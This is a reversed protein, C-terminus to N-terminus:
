GKHTACWEELKRPDIIGFGQFFKKGAYEKNSLPTSNEKFEKRYDDVSNLPLHPCCKRQYSLMLAAVGVAFPCAMSTGSLISYWDPPYTSFIQGGPALFDLNEGTNSFDSRDFDEDISGIAITEPYAAPYFVEKTKGANGAACFTVINKSAAYQIAKRVQQVPCPSGLSMSIIDVGQDAAWRIAEAVIELNGNGNKDLVKVPMIKARPAVGVMGIENNDAALIGACHTNSVFHGNALYTHNDQVTFDYFYGSYTDETIRKVRRVQTRHRTKIQSREKKRPHLLQCSIEEPLSSFTCNLIPFKKNETKRDFSINKHKQVGCLIGISNFLASIKNALNISITTIRNKTNEKSICGDGDIVGALFSCIVSYPSKGVFEPLDQFYSKNKSLVGLHEFLLVMDKSDVWVRGARGRKGELEIKPVVGLRIFKDYAGKLIEPTESCVEIRYNRGHTIHGDTVVLGILYALDENVLYEKVYQSWKKKNCKKCQRKKGYLRIPIHGCNNCQYYKFPQARYYESVLRGAENGQPISLKDGEALEDARKKIIKRKNHNSHSVTFIPHWPTLKLTINNELIVNIIRGSIPIKHVFEVSKIETAGSTTNLSYTKIGHSRIDKVYGNNQFYENANIRGYLKKIEEVGCFNTHILTEPSVCGHGCDDEPPSGRKLFNYGPILNAILDPHDLDCGSDLIAIKVGEGQTEDWVEPLEFATIEWGAKQQAEQANLIPEVTFPPLFCKTKKKSM